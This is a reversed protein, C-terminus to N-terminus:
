SQIRAGVEPLLWLREARLADLLAAAGDHLPTAMVRPPRVNWTPAHAPLGALEKARAIATRVDGLEDVLGQEHAARGSWVRGRALEDVRELPLKRGDAVRRIFQRYTEQIREEVYAREEDSFPRTSSFADAFRHLVIREARIGLRELLGELVFKGAIVGISGTVCTPTAVIHRAHTLVYYGGSAAVDGMAAVVPKIRDLREVERWVLDSALASGGPSDVHLVVAETRPDEAAARLARILTESGAFAGGVLPLPLPARRSEGPVITGALSVVAVRGSAAPVPRPLFRAAAPLRAAGEPVVEDAYGVRDALGREVMETRGVPPRDLWGRVEDQSRGRSRAMDAVLTREVDELLATVQERQAESMSGRAFSEFATKFERIRVRDFSVGARELASGYYLTEAALGWPGDGAAESVVIRDAATAVWYALLSPYALYALTEKGADRLEAVLGRLTHAASTGFSTPGFRLVVGTCWEAQALAGVQTSLRELSPDRPGVEPPFTFLRRPTDRAPYGGQIDLVVWPPREGPLRTALNALRVAGRRILIRLDPLDM